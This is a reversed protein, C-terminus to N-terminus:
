WLGYDATPDARPPDAVVPPPKRRDRVVRVARGALGGAIGPRGAGLRTFERARPGAPVDRPLSGAAVLWDPLGLVRLVRSLRESEIEDDSALEDALLEGLEEAAEPRGVASAFDEAHEVGLPDSLVTTDSLGHSPDSVYRGLEEGDRWVALALQRDAAVRVAVLTAGLRAALEAGVELVGRRGAAVTSAGREAVAVVWGHEEPGVWGTFRIEALAALVHSREPAPAALHVLIGAYSLGTPGRDPGMGSWASMGLAVARDIGDRRRGDSPM